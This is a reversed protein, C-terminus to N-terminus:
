AALGPRGALQLLDKFIHRPQRATLLLLDNLDDRSHHSLVLLASLSAGVTPQFSILIATQM